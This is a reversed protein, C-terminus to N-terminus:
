PALAQVIDDRAPPPIARKAVGAQARLRDQAEIIELVAQQAGEIAAAVVEEPTQRGAGEVMMVGERTGAVVLELDSMGRQEYTPNIIFQEDIRAIRVAGVPGDFPIDSITLAASAGIMGLIDPINDADASLVTVIIQVENRIHSHFLPRLPRDIRRATVIAQESPRSERKIFRSGPIRGAAYLREEYDCTLPFFDIGERVQESMVATALVISDGQRVVVAGSAQRALTGAELSLEKGGPAVQVVAM